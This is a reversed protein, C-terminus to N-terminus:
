VRMTVHFVIDKGPEDSGVQLVEATIIDGTYVPINLERFVYGVVLTDTGDPLVIKDEDDDFFISVGNLFVDIVIDAGEPPTTRAIIDWSSIVGVRQGEQKGPVKYTNLIPGTQLGPNTLGVVTMGIEFTAYVFFLDQTVRAATRMAQVAAQDGVPAQGTRATVTHRWVTLEQEQSVVREIFYTGSTLPAATNITISQGVDLWLPQQASNYDFTVQQQYGDGAYAELLAAATQEALEQTTVDKAQQVAEYLGVAAISATDEAKFALPFPAPYVVRITLGSGVPALNVNRYIARNGEFFYWQYGPVDWNPFLTVIQRDSPLPDPHDGEDWVYIVPYAGNSFAYQTFFGVTSGDGAFDEQLMAAVDSSPLVWQRNRFVRDSSTVSMTDWNRQPEADSLNFAAAGATGAVQFHLTKDQDIWWSYGPAKDVLRNLAETATVYHFLEDDLVVGPDSVFGFTIGFQALYTAVIDAVIITILGGLEITYLKAVVVRDTYSQYDTCRVDFISDERSQLSRESFSQILGGFRKEQDVFIQVEDQQEPRGGGPWNPSYVSFTASSRAGLVKEIRLTSEIWECREGNVLLQMAATGQLFAPIGVAAQSAAGDFVYFGSGFGPTGVAAQSPTTAPALSLSAFSPTGVAAQSATTDPALVQLPGFGPTGISGASAVSAPLISQTLDGFHPTGVAAQSPVTSPDISTFATHQLIEVEVATVRANADQEAIAIEVPDTTLRIAM